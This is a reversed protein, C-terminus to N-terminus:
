RAPQIRTERARASLVAGRLRRGGHTDDQADSAARSTRDMRAQCVAGNRRAM